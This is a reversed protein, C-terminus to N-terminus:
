ETKPAMLSYGLRPRRHGQCVTQVTIFVSAVMTTLAFLPLDDAIRELILAATREAAMDIFVSADATGDIEAAGEHM